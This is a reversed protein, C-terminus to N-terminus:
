QSNAGPLTVRRYPEMIPTLRGMGESLAVLAQIDTINRSSSIYSETTTQVHLPINDLQLLRLREFAGDVSGDSLYGEAVMVTYDEIYDQRLATVPGNTYEIPAIGWGYVLGAVVGLVLGAGLSIFFRKM